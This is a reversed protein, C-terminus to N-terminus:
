ENRVTSQVHFASIVVVELKIQRQIVVFGLPEKALGAPIFEVQGHWLSLCCERSLFTCPISLLLNLKKIAAPSNNATTRAQLAEVTLRLLKFIPFSLVRTLSCCSQDSRCPKRLRFPKSRARCLSLLLDAQRQLHRLDFVPGSGQNPFSGPVRLCRCRSKCM